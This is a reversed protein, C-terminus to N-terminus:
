LFYFVNFIFIFILFIIYKGQSSSLGLSNCLLHVLKSLYRHVHLLYQISHDPCDSKDQPLSRMTQSLEGLIHEIGKMSEKRSLVDLINVDFSSKQVVGEVADRKERYSESFDSWYQILDM